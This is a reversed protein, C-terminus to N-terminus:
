LLEEIDVLYQDYNNVMFKKGKQIVKLGESELLEKQAEIGGPYKENLVGDSKLTRWYPTINEEGQLHTEEAAHAAVWSFIGTTIPCAINTGHKQALAERIRNITVIKGKPIKKMMADVELPAPIVCTGTGWRKSMKEDITFIRPLGKENNLKETWTKNKQAM